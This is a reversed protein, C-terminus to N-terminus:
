LVSYSIRILSQLESTYEDSRLSFNLGVGFMLLIVGIEALQNALGADAVFGPTFPGVLVGALLYGAIPSVKLRHALAGMLFAVVLGAVIMSILPSHHHM